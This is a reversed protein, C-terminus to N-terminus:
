VARWITEYILKKTLGNVKDSKQLEDYSVWRTNDIRLRTTDPLFTGFLVHAENDAIEVLGIPIIMAWETSVGTYKLLLDEAIEKPNQGKILYINPVDFHDVLILSEGRNPDAATVVLHIKIFFSDV